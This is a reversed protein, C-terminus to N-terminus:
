MIFSKLNTGILNVMKNTRPINNPFCKLRGRIWEKARVPIKRISSVIIKKPFLFRFGTDNPINMAKVVILIPMSDM